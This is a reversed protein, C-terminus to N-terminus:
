RVEMLEESTLFKISLAYLIAQVRAMGEQGLVERGLREEKQKKECEEIVPGADHEKMRVVQVRYLNFGERLECWATPVRIEM